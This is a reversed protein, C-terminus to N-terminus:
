AKAPTPLISNNVELTLILHRAGVRRIKASPYRTAPPGELAANLFM